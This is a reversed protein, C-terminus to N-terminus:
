SRDDEPPRKRGTIMARALNEGHALSAHVVGALHLAVLILILNALIEHAEKVWRVGWYADSEMMIGTGAVGALTLLLAVAMAGGAPNHGIYRRAKHKLTARLYRLVRGPRCVFDAFRAHRPGIVGWILRFGILGVVVYGATEHLADWEEASLWAVAVSAVLSWHFLRVLPDWVKIETEAPRAEEFPTATM